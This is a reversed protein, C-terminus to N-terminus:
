GVHDPPERTMTDYARGGSDLWAQFRSSWHNKRRFALMRCQTMYHMISNIEPNGYIALVSDLVTRLRSTLDTEGEEVIQDRTEEIARHALGCFYWACSFAIQKEYNYIGMEVAEKMFTPPVYLIQGQTQPDTDTAVFVKNDNTM